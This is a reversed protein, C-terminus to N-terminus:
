APPTNTATALFTPTHNGAMIVVAPTTPSPTDIKMIKPHQEEDYSFSSSSTPRKRYSCAFLILSTLILLLTLAIGGFLYPIPTNWLRYHHHHHQHGSNM